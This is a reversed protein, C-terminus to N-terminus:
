LNELFKIVEENVLMMEVYARVREPDVKKYRETLNKVEKEVNEKNPEIKEELSIKQLILRIKIKKEADPIWEKKLDQFTKKINKLYEELQLGVQAIDDKFEAEMVELENAILIKPIKIKTEAEIKELLNERKQNKKHIEKEKTINIKLKEKFDIIDKYDGLSKVFEDNIEPLILEEGEEKDKAQNIHQNQNVFIKRIQYITEEIQKETVEEVKEEMNNEKKAIKKYDSLQIEPMIITKIKFEVPSGIAIKSIIIEPRGLFNIKEEILIEIVCDNIAREGADELISMEGFKEKLIIEPIHGKRFGPLEAEEKLKNFAKNKYDILAENTIEAIIEIECDPLKKIEKIKYIKTM